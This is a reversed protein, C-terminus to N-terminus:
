FPLKKISIIKTFMNDYTVVYEGMEIEITAYPILDEWAVNIPRMQWVVKSMFDDIVGDMGFMTALVESVDVDAHQRFTNSNM